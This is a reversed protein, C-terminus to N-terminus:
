TVTALLDASLNTSASLDEERLFDFKGGLIGAANKDNRIIYELQFWGKEATGLIRIASAHEIAAICAGPWQDDASIRTAIKKSITAPRPQTKEPFNKKWVELLSEITSTLRSDKTNKKVKEVKEVKKHRQGRNARPKGETQGNTQGAARQDGQYTDWNCITVVTFRNARGNARIAGCKELKLLLNRIIKPSEGHTRALEGITTLYQGPAVTQGRFHYPKRSTQLLLWDFLGISKLGLSYLESDLARRWKKIYGRQM